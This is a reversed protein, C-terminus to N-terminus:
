ATPQASRGLLAEQAVERDDFHIKYTGGPKMPDALIQYDEHGKGAILVIDGSQAYAIASEIAKRRDLDVSVHSGPKGADPIGALIEQIIANPDETRPNDSTVIVRDSRTAAMKGMVPRKTRDRDGGCGFVTILKHSGKVESLTNLVKDLADPKHAYDVFVHVDRSNQVRELRGPVSKLAAIGQAITMADLQLGQGAAIAGLLNQANFRGALQSKFTVGGAEGRIGSLDVKLNAGSIDSQPNLGFSAFWMEPRSQKRLTELLRKGFEDDESVGAFPRKGAQISHTACETFLLAKSSYYDEMDPHFDLHERTLNTFIMVDFAIFAARSQKLAHSSVEMVVATCGDAKMEALLRQLEVAGPTTHTSPYVKTGYRFNVTGIVGVEHEAAKLISEVLYTTTTKGSTGTVGVVTMGKSPNGYFQSALFALAQRSDDVQIYPTSLAGLKQKVQVESWEGVVLAAGMKATKEIFEHGDQSGGKVAVFISGPKVERSDSTVDTISANPYGAFLERLNNQIM